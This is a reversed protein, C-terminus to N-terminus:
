FFFFRAGSGVTNMGYTVMRPEFASWVCGYTAPPTGQATKAEDAPKKVDQIWHWLRITHTNDTAVTALTSGDPSFACATIARAGEGHQLRAVEQLTTSDWVCVHPAAGLQGSAVVRRNPHIGLSTVDDTHGHFFAQTHTARDYVVGVAAVHYVVKNEANYHM